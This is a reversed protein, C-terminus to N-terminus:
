ASPEDDKRVIMKKGDLSLHLYDGRGIELYDTFSSPIVM